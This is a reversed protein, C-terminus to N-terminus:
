KNNKIVGSLVSWSDGIINSGLAEPSQGTNIMLVVTINYDPLYLAGASYGLASGGHGLTEMGLVKSYDVVGLGYIGGEPDQLTTEPYTLMEELSGPSLVSGEVFLAHMWRVLDEPTAYMTPHTLSASWTQPIGHLDELVGDGEQDMWPHAVPYKSPPPDSMTVYTNKLKMPKLFYRKLEDPVTSGTVKEIISTVLLYNTSSYHQAYGPPGYPELVFNDFVEEETWERAYDVDPGVWPFDPHEFVNFIGSSHNLLQRLTTEGDVNQYPPLYMSVPDDLSLKGEEVLKLVLAAEFNKLISGAIFLMDTTIPVGPHSVGSVGAWTAYGPLIVAASIGLEYEPYEDLVQDIASQLDAAYPIAPFNRGGQDSTLNCSYM